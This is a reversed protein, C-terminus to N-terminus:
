RAGPLALRTPEDRGRLTVEDGLEWRAREEAGARRFAAASALLQGPRRKALECLRAAENVPDGIVTYEFREEAGVNGAVAGGASVGIGAELEPLREALREKLDRASALAAGAPDGVPAPAGFVCLAADGEFKNVWGGHREVSEVVLQFFANLLAVVETAPRRAALTTSGIVDVFLVGVERLEGGLRLEGELAARAVERGVHRGFLDRLREREGLGTAMSNFGAELQGVESADDVDVRADLDGAEVRSMAQRVARVPDAVARAAIVTSLLGAILGTAALLLTAVQTTTDLPAGALDALAIAAVGMLPVGTVLTWTMTLRATVGPVVPRMPASDALARAVLPRSLRETLLYGVACSTAGGLLVVVGATAALAASETANVATFLVAALAWLNASIGAVLVPQRLVLEREEPTPPRDEVLWREIPAGLARQGWVNGLVLGAGMAVVFAALNLLLLGTRDGPVDPYPSLIGFTLSTLGGVGNSAVAAATVRRRITRALEAGAPGANGDQAM